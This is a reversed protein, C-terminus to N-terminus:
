SVASVKVTITGKYSGSVNNNLSSIPINLNFGFNYVRPHDFTGSERFIEVTTDSDSSGTFVTTTGSNTYNLLAGDENSLPKYETIEVKLPYDTFAQLYLYFVNTTYNEYTSDVEDFKVEFLGEDTPKITSNTWSTSFGINYSINATFETPIPTLQRTEAFLSFVCIGLLVIFLGLRKM